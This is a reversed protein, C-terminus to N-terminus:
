GISEASYFIFCLVREVYPYVYSLRMRDCVTYSKFALACLLLASFAFMIFVRVTFQEELQATFRSLEVNRRLTQVLVHRMQQAMLPRNRANLIHAMSMDLDQQLLMYQGKLHAILECLLATEGFVMTVIFLAVWLSSLILPIFIYLPDTNFCPIMSFLFDKSQKILMLIPAALYGMVTCVYMASVFRNFLLSREVERYIQMHRRPDVYINAYFKELLGRFKRRRLLANPSRLQGEVLILYTPVGALLLDLNNANYWLYRLEADNHVLLFVFGLVTLLYDFLRWFTTTSTDLPWFIHNLRYLKLPWSLKVRQGDALLPVYRVM